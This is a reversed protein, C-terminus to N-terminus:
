KKLQKILVNAVLRNVEESPHQDNSNIIRKYVPVDKILDSVDITQINKQKFYNILKNTYTKKSIELDTLFPFIIMTLEVNNQRSFNIFRDLEKTHLRFCATDQYAANLYKNFDNLGPHPISWYIFNILYSANIAYTFVTPINQYVRYGNYPKMSDAISIIDNGFYELYIKSPKKKTKNLFKIFTEYERKTESGSVGINTICHDPYQSQIANRVIDSYRDNVKKLGWGETFSDGIFLIASDKDKEPERERFGLSNRTNWYKHYFLKHGLTTGVGHSRPIFMFVAELFIILVFISFLITAINRIIEKRDKKIFIERFLQASETLIFLLVILRFYITKGTSNYMTLFYATGFLVLLLFIRYWLRM